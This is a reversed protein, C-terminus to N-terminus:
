ELMFSNSTMGNNLVHSQINKYSVKVWCLFDPGFNFTKLWKFLFEWEVSDFAKQFDIFLMLGPISEKSTFDM